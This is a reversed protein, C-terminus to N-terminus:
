TRLTINQCIFVLAIIGETGCLLVRGCLQECLTLQASRSAGLSEWNVSWSFSSSKHQGWGAKLSWPSELWVSPEMRCTLRGCVDTRFGKAKRIQDVLFLLFHWGESFLSFPLRHTRDASRVKSLWWCSTRNQLKPLHFRTEGVGAGPCPSQIESEGSCSGGRPCGQGLCSTPLILGFHLLAVPWAM